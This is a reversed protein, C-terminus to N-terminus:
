RRNNDHSIGVKALTTYEGWEWDTVVSLAINSEIILRTFVALQEPNMFIAQGTIRDRKHHTLATKQKKVVNM